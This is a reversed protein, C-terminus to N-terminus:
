RLHLFVCDIELMASLFEGDKVAKQVVRSCLYGALANVEGIGGIHEFALIRKINIPTPQSFLLTITRDPIRQRFRYWSTM